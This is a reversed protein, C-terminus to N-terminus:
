FAHQLTLNIGVVGKFPPFSNGYTYVSLSTVSNTVLLLLLSINIDLGTSWLESWGEWSVASCEM